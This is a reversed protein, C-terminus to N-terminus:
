YWIAPETVQTPLRNGTGLAIQDAALAAAAADLVDDMAAQDMESFEVPLKVGAADLANLRQRFGTWSKKTAMTGGLRLFVLEPHTEHLRPDRESLAIAERIARGLAFSQQPVGCGVTAQALANAAAHNEAALVAEPYTDFMSSRRPGLLKRGERECVRGKTGPAPYSLPIDVTIVSADAGFTTAVEALSPLVTGADFRGDVLRIVAWSGACLDAGVVIRAM